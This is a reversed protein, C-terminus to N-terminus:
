ASQKQKPRSIANHTKAEGEGETKRKLLRILV